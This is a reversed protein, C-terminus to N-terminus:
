LLLEVAHAVAEVVLRPDEQDQPEHVKKERKGRAENGGGSGIQGLRENAVDFSRSHM